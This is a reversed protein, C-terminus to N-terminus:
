RTVACVCLRQAVCHRAVEGSVYGRVFRFFLPVVAASPRCAAQAPGPGPAPQQFFVLWGSVPFTSPRGVPAAHEHTQAVACLCM